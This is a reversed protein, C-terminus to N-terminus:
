RLYFYRDGDIQGRGTGDRARRATGYLRGRCAGQTAAKRLRGFRLITRDGDRVSVRKGSCFEELSTGGPGDEIGGRAYGGHARDRADGRSTGRRSLCRDTRLQHVGRCHGRVREQLSLARPAHARESDSDGADAVSPIGRPGSDVE